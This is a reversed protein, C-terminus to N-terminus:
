RPAGKTLRALIAEFAQRQKDDTSVLLTLQAYEAETMGHEQVIKAVQQRLRERLQQQADDIKNGPKALEAGVEDRVIGIQVYAKAFTTLTEEGVPPAAKGGQAYLTGPTTAAMLFLVTLALGLLSRDRMRAEM